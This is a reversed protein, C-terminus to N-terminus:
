SRRYPSLRLDAARELPLVAFHATPARQWKQLLCALSVAKTKQTNDNIVRPDRGKAAKKAMKASFENNVAFIAYLKFVVREWPQM